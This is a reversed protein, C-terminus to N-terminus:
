SRRRVVSYTVGGFFLLAPILVVSFVFIVRLKAGDLIIPTGKVQKSPVAIMDERQSLWNVSNLMLEVGVQNGSLFDDRILQSSGFVVLRMGSKDEAPPPAPMNPIQPAGKSLAVGIPQASLGGVPPSIKGDSQMLQVLDASWSQPSSKVLPTAQFGGDSTGIVPRTIGLMSRSPRKSLDRTIVHTPDFSSMLPQEPSGLIQQGMMDLIISNPLQLGYKELTSELNPMEGGTRSSAADVLALLKGGKDLYEELTRAEPGYLDRRPGALVLLSADEPVRGEKALDLTASQIGRQAM